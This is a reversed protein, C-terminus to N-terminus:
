GLTMTSRIAIYSKTLTLFKERFVIGDPFLASFENFALLRLQTVYEEAQAPTPWEIWGWVTFRGALKLQVPRPLWHFCPTLLHPEVLFERAPTQVWYQRGVRRIEKAFKQQAEWNFLHEIVSNSFVIDFDGDGFPLERGDGVVATCRRRMSEVVTFPELNLTTVHAEIPVDAWFAPHGGVDLIRMGKRPQFTSIFRAM